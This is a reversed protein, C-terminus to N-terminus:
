WSQLLIIHIKEIGRGDNCGLQWFSSSSSSRHQRCFGWLFFYYQLTIEGKHLAWIAIHVPFHHYMFTTASHESERRRYPQEDDPHRCWWTKKLLTYLIVLYILLLSLYFFSSKEEVKRLLGLFCPLDIKKEKKSCFPVDWSEWLCPIQFSTEFPDWWKPDKLSWWKPLSCHNDRKKWRPLLLLLALLYLVLLLPLLYGFAKWSSHFLNQSIYDVVMKKILQHSYHTNM